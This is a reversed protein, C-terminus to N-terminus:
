NTAEGRGSSGFGQDLEYAVTLEDGITPECFNQVFYKPTQGM